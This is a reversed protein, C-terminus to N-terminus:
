RSKLSPPAAARFLCSCRTRRRSAQVMAIAAETARVSNLDPVPHGAEMVAFRPLPGRAHGYPTIVLGQGIREDLTDSAAKAMGWAAKGIALVLLRGPGFSLRNLAATVAKKPQAAAVATEIVLRADERLTSV